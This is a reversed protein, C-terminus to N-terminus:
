RLLTSFRSNKEEDKKWILLELKKCKIFYIYETFNNKKTFKVFM